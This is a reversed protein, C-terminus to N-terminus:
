QVQDTGEQDSDHTHREHTTTHLNRAVKTTFKETCGLTNCIHLPLYAGSTTFLVWKDRPILCPVQSPDKGAVVQWGNVKAVLPSLHVSKKSGNHCNHHLAMLNEVLDKGGASRFQRHHLAWEGPILVGGCLECYGGCRKYVQDRVKKM